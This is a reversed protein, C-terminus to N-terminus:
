VVLYVFEGLESGPSMGGTSRGGMVNDNISRWASVESASSMDVMMEQALDSRGGVEGGGGGGGGRGGELIFDMTERLRWARKDHNALKELEQLTAQVSRAANSDLTPEIERLCVEYVEACAAADGSNYLPVGISIAERIRDHADVGSAGDRRAAERDRGLSRDDLVDDFAHRLAWAADKESGSRVAEQLGARLRREEGAEASALAMEAAKRYLEACGAIDGRNYMPAGTRIADRLVDAPPLGDLLGDARLRPRHQRLMRGLVVARARTARVAGTRRGPCSWARLDHDGARTERAALV